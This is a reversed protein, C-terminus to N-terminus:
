DLVLVDGAPARGVGDLAPRLALIAHSIPPGGIPENRHPWTEEGALRHGEVGGVLFSPLRRGADHRPRFVRPKRATVDLGARGGRGAGRAWPGGPKGWM